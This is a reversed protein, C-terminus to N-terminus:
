DHDEETNQPIGDPWKRVSRILHRAADVSSTVKLSEGLQKYVSCFIKALTITFTDGGALVV